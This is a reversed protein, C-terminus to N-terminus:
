SRGVLGLAVRRTHPEVVGSVSVGASYGVEDICNTRIVQSRQSSGKLSTEPRLKALTINISRLVRLSPVTIERRWHGSLVSEDTGAVIDEAEVKGASWPRYLGDGSREDVRVPILKPIVVIDVLADVSCGTDSQLLPLAVVELGVM